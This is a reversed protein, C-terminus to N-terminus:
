GERKIEALTKRALKGGKKFHGGFYDFDCLSNRHMTPAKSEESSYFPVWRDKDAYFELAEILKQNQVQLTDIKSEYDLIKQTEIESMIKVEGM